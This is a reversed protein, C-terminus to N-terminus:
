LHTYSVTAFYQLTNLKDGSPGSSVTFGAALKGVWKRAFWREATADAFAKFQAAPGGMYTPSGFIIAESADLRALVADNQYRGEIIDRGEIRFVEVRVGAVAAAGSAVAEAMKATHGGGSYYIVSLTKM